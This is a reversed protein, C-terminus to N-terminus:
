SRASTRTDADDHSGAEGEHGESGQPWFARVVLGAVVLVLVGMVIPTQALGIITGLAPMSFVVRHADTVVYPEHDNEANADGRLTLQAAGDAADSPEIAVIRHTVPLSSGHSQVTVVDGVALEGAEVPMVIAAAGTPMTPSMSGTKFVILQAGTALSFIFWCAVVVGVIALLTTAVNAVVSVAKSM